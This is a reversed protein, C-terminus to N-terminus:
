VGLGIMPRINFQRIAFQYGIDMVFYRLNQSTTGTGSPILIGNADQRFTTFTKEQAFHYVYSLGIFISPNFKYGARLGVGLKSNFANFRGFDPDITDVGFGYGVLGDIVLNQSRAIYSLSILTLLLIVKKM